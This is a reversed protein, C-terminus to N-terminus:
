GSSNFAESARPNPIPSVWESIVYTVTNHSAIPGADDKEGAHGFTLRKRVEAISERHKM